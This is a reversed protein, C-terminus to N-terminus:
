FRFVFLQFPGFFSFFDELGLSQAAPLGIDPQAVSLEGGSPISKTEKFRFYKNM